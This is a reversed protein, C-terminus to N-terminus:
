YETIVYLPHSDPFSYIYLYIYVYMYMHIFSNRHQINNNAKELPETLLSDAQLAFSM